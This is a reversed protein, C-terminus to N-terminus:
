LAWRGAELSDRVVQALFSPGLFDFTSSRVKYNLLATLRFLDDYDDRSIGNLEAFPLRHPSIDEPEIDGRAAKLQAHEVSGPTPSYLKPIAMGTLQHVRMANGVLGDLNEDPRGIWVFGSLVRHADSQWGGGRRHVYGAEELASLIRSYTAEDIDGNENTAPELHLESFPAKALLHVHEVPFSRPEIGCIGHFQLRWGNAAVEELIAGLRTEFDAFINDNFFALHGVGHRVADAIEDTCSPSRVDLSRFGLRSGGYLSFDAPWERLDLYDSVLIDVGFCAEMAHAAELVPYNGYAIIRPDRLKSRVRAAVLPITQWWFSTLSTLWVTGPLWGQSLLHDLFSDFAKWPQGFRFWLRAGSEGGADVVHKFRPLTGREDPLLFDFLRVDCGHDEELLTGLKLLDLPQNWRAWPYRTDVVPPNVLLVKGEITDLAERATSLSRTTM